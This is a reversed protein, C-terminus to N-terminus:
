PDPKYLLDHLYQSELMTVDAFTVLTGQTIKKKLAKGSGASTAYEQYTIQEPEEEVWDVLTWHADDSINTNGDIVDMWLLVSNQRDASKIEIM